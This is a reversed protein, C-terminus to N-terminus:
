LRIIKKLVVIGNELQIKLIYVGSSENKLDIGINNNNKLKETRIKKGFVNFIEIGKINKAEINFKGSTPNPSILVSNLNFQNTSLTSAFVNKLANSMKSWGTADNRLKTKEQEIHIFRGSTSTASSSCHNSSNNILRGQTNTFGILRTWNTNIHAIQFTLSSDESVLENKILTAYDTTPTQRTGNSMIVYPDSSRKGFGHLQIFVSNSINTFLNETTKQFMTTVNHALDSKKFSQSGSSCTSTTGSCTSFSSSNCRHTGSLFVARAITNKFCYMAQKGTNTDYKIHPAQIILNNRTPTKSFVYTGWHNSSSNQKELVYFIQNPSISTDTFETVQYGLSSVSNRAATLNNALLNDIVTNWTTLQSNNPDAYDDGSSGPVNDIINGVYTEINGSATQSFIIISFLLLVTLLINKM